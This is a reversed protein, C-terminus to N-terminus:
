FLCKQKGKKIDDLSKHALKARDIIRARERADYKEKETQVQSKM